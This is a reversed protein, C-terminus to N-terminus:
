PFMRRPCGMGSGKIYGAILKDQSHDRSLFAVPSDRRLSMVHSFRVAIGRVVMDDLMDLTDRRRGAQINLM